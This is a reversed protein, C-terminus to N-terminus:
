SALIDNGTVAWWSVVLSRLPNGQSPAPYARVWELPGTLPDVVLDVHLSGNEGEPWYEAIGLQGPYAAAVRKWIFDMANTVSSGEGLETVVAFHGPQGAAEWVRLRCAGAPLYPPQYEWRPADAVLDGFEPLWPVRGQRARHPLPATV